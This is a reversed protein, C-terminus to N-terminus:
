HGIVVTDFVDHCFPRIEDFDSARGSCTVVWANTAVIVVRQVQTYSGGPYARYALELERAPLGAMRAPFNREVFAGNPVAAEISYRVFEDLSGGFQRRYVGVTTRVGGQEEDFPEGYVALFEPTPNPLREYDRPIDLAWGVGRETRDQVYALAVVGLAGALLAGIALAAAALIWGRRRAPPRAPLPATAVPLHPPTLAPGSPLTAGIADVPPGSAASAAPAGVGVARLARLLEVANAPRRSPHKELCRDVLASLAPPISPDVLSLPTHRDTQVAVIVAHLTEGGYPRRGALAEYLMVGVAWVDAAPTVDRASMSQEPAMYDPTGMMQGEGTAAPGTAGRVLGFDLLMVGRDRDVFVNEPKLDRHVFGATHAAALPELLDVIRALAGRGMEQRLTHGRLLETVLYLQGTAPDVGADLVAVIRPHGIQAPASAERSFRTAEEPSYAGRPRVVKLAAEARTVRHRVRYVDGMGGAGLPELIEWRDAVVAGPHM